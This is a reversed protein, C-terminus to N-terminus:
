LKYKFWTLQPKLSVTYRCLFTDGSFWLIQSHAVSCSIQLESQIAGSCCVCILAYKVSILASKRISQTPDKSGIRVKYRHLILLYVATSIGVLVSRQRFCCKFLYSQKPKSESFISCYKETMCLSAKREDRTM